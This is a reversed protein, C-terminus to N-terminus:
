RMSATVGGVMGGVTAAKALDDRLQAITEEQAACRADLAKVLPLLAARPDDQM